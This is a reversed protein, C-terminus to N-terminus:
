RGLCGGLEQGYGDPLWPCNFPSATMLLEVGTHWGFFAHVQNLRGALTLTPSNALYAKM